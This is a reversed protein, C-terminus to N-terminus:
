LSIKTIDRTFFLQLFWEFGIRIRKKWSAFKSLYVTRWVWWAFGGKIRVSYIQGIAFWEGLSVLSGKSHYTFSALAKPKGRALAVINRAVVSAEAQAVQALQPLPRSAPPAPDVYAAADGMAFIRDSGQLRFDPGVALRGSTLAPMLPPQGAPQGVFKPFLAKVGAAWVVLSAPVAKGTALMLGERTISTVAAELMIRVGKRGLHTRAAQRLQPQFQELLDKSANLLAFSPSIGESLAKDGFYRHAITDAFEALEAAVEVGTPGGGVVAFSLLARRAEASEARSAQEFAEIVRNRIRAADALTKLPLANEAAGPIGYYNTEAGTAIVLYDYALSLKKTGTQGDTGTVVVEREEPDISEAVGEIIRIGMGVFIERLPEAVTRPSLGGTAVEHLLPTFLFSNTRNVITVDLEGRRVLPALKKATYVGGFGAGLIVIHPRLM